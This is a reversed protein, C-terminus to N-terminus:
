PFESHPPKPGLIYNMARNKANFQCRECDRADFNAIKDGTEHAMWFEGFTKDKISGLLGRKNYALVCCRYVNQDDGVYTNYEQYYCTPYDPPGDELDDLRDGFLDHVKFTPCDLEIGAEHIARKIDAYIPEYPKPGEPSFVASFRIYAAGHEKALRAGLAIERYNDPTVVFGVGLVCPPDSSETDARQRIEAGLRAINGWVKNFHGAPTNRIKAYTEPTGADVSVRVWAFRALAPILSDSMSVGNTVLARKLGREEARQFILEHDPHVLPEGGGTFQVALVGAEALEDMLDLARETPMWRKPNNHGYRAVPSDGVFMENSSYGTMRYACFSCDQNCLASLIVQAQKPAVTVHGDNFLHWAMKLESYIGSSM